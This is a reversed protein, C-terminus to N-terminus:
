FLAALGAALDVIALDVSAMLSTGRGRGRGVAGPMRDAARATGAAMGGTSVIGATEAEASRAVSAGLADTNEEGNLGKVCSNEPESLDAVGAVVALEDSPWALAIGGAALV